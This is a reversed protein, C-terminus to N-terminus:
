EVLKEKEKRSLAKVTFERKLAHSRNACSEHYVIGVPRRSRTYRSARGNRHQNLRRELDNTIGAYFSGDSCRLIYLVWSGDKGPSSRIPEERTSM